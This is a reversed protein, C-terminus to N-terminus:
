KGAGISVVFNVTEERFPSSIYALELRIEKLRNAKLAEVPFEVDLTQSADQGPDLRENGYTTFKVISDARAADLKIRQGQADMFVVKGEVLRVTRNASTNELRLKGTLRAPSVVRESGKEVRETVKLEIVECTIMGTKVTMSLFTVSYVKDEIVVEESTERCVKM